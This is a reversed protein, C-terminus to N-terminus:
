AEASLTDMVEKEDLLKCKLEETVFNKIGRHDIGYLDMAYRVASFYTMSFDDVISDVMESFIEATPKEKKKKSSHAKQRNLQGILSERLKFIESSTSQLTDM